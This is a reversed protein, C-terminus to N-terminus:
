LMGRRRLRFSPEALRVIASRVETRAAKARPYNDVTFVRATVQKEECHCDRTSGHHVM